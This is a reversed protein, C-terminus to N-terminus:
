LFFDPLVLKASLKHSEPPAEKFLTFDTNLNDDVSMFCAKNQCRYCYNPASWVTVIQKDFLWKYGEQIM